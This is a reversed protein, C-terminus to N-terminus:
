IVKVSLSFREPGAPLSDLCVSAASTVAADQDHTNSGPPRRITTGWCEFRTAASQCLQGMESQGTDLFHRLLSSFGPDSPNSSSATNM